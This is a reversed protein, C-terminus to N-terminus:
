DNNSENDGDRMALAFLFGMMALAGIVMGVALGLMAFGWPMTAVRDEM